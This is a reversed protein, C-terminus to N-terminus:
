SVTKKRGGSGVATWGDPRGQLVAALPCGVAAFVARFSGSRLCPLACRRVALRGGKDQDMGPRTERDLADEPAVRAHLPRERNGSHSKFNGPPAESLRLDQPVM